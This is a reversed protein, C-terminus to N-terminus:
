DPQCITRQRPGPDIRVFGQWPDLLANAEGEGVALDRCDSERQHGLHQDHGAPGPTPLVVITLAIRRM